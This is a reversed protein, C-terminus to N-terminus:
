KDDLNAPTMKKTGQDFHGSAKVLAPRASACEYLQMTRGFLAGDPLVITDGIGSAQAPHM